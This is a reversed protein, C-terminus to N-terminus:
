EVEESALKRRRTELSRFKIIEERKQIIQDRWRPEEPNIRDLGMGLGYEIMTVADHCLRCLSRLEEIREQGGAHRYTIHQVTTAPSKCFVCLYHDHNVREQRIKRYESNGYNARPRPPRPTLTQTPKEAISVGGGEGVRLQHRIVFRPRHAPPEFTLPVDYWVEADAPAEPQEPTVLWDLLCDLAEPQTDGKLRPRWLVSALASLLDPFDGHPHELLPRSPPCCKRGLYLTWQPDKVAVEMQGILAPEGQLAVLFSADCLYERRTLMAGPKTKGEGEAIRMEVGAGVTHYDWWHVGAADIRVGMRLASLKPLWEEGAESRSVGMAACLMGIVGSKTPAEATRRVVFKSEQDGWAQLPGELRLFLTNASM